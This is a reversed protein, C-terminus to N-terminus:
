NHSNAIVQAKDDPPKVHTPHVHPPSKKCDVRQWVISPYSAHFCGSAPMPNQAMYTRWAARAASESAAVPEAETSSDAVPAQSTESAIASPPETGWAFGGVAAAIGACLLLVTQRNSHKLIEVNTIEWPAPPNTSPISRHRRFVIASEM